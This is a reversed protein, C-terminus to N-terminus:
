SSDYLTMTISGHVDLVNMQLDVWFASVIYHSFHSVKVPANTLWSNTDKRVAASLVAGSHEPCFHDCGGNNELCEDIDAFFLSLYHYYHHFVSIFPKLVLILIRMFLNKSIYVTKRFLCGCVCSWLMMKFIDALAPVGDVFGIFALGMLLHTPFQTHTHLKPNGRCNNWYSCCFVHQSLNQVLILQVSTPCFTEVLSLVVSLCALQVHPPM